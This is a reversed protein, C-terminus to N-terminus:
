RCDFVHDEERGATTFCRLGVRTPRLAYGCGWRALSEYGEVSDSVVDWELTPTLDALSALTGGPAPVPPYWALRCRQINTAFMDWSLAVRVPAPGLPRFGLRFQRTLAYAQPLFLLALFVAISRPSRM